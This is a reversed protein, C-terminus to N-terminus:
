SDSDERSLVGQASSSSRILARGFASVAREVQSDEIILPPTIRLVCNHVGTISILIQEEERLLQQIRQAREPDPERTSRDRVIEVGIMLGRGRVDGVADHQLATERLGALFKEGLRNAREPLKEDDLIDLVTNAARLGLQNNPGFTTFHDGPEFATGLDETALVGGFPVGGGIAKAFTIVDPQNNWHQHAFMRGTRGFGTFVEDHVLTVDHRHLIAQVKPWYEDPPVIVGGVGLIPEAIMVAVDGPAATKMREEIV